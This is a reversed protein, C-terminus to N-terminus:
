VEKKGTVVEYILSQHYKKLQQITKNNITIISDIEACKEDLYEVIRKQEELTDPIAFCLNNYKEASINQITAQIFIQQTWQEYPQTLTYYYLFKSNAKANNARFRILYGAFCCAGDSNEYYYSKGATAGSRALLIDGDELMYDKATEIPLSQKGDDALKRESTIDTIRIYRPLGEDFEIGTANAGYQLPEKALHKMRWVTWKEPIQGLWEIGSDKLPINPDLGKTVAEYIISQRQEKLLANTKEKTAILADIEACKDNLYSIIRNQEDISPFPLYM